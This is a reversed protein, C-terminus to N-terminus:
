TSLSDTSVLKETQLLYALFTHANQLYITKAKTHRKNELLKEQVIYYHSDTVSFLYATHKICSQNNWEM